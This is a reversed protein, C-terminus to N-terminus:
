PRPAQLLASQIETFYEDGTQLSASLYWRARGQEDFMTPPYVAVGVVGGSAKLMAMQYRRWTGDPTMVHLWMERIETSTVGALAGSIVTPVDLPIRQPPALADLHPREGVGFEFTAFRQNGGPLDIVQVPAAEGQHEVRVSHPGRPLELTLPTVGRREGDIWVGAGSLTESGEDGAMRARVDLVGTSPATMPRALVAATEGVKVTVTQGWSPMGPGSFRVEHAGPLVSDLTVPVFGRAVGDVSVSIPLGSESGRVDLAGWLPADLVVRDGREGRVEFSASGLDAFSLTIQHLGPPADVTAPTRRALDKGDLAIWAGPPRSQVVIDFRAGGFGLARAARAVPGPGSRDEQLGGIIWGGGLLGVAVLAWTWWRRWLAVEPKPAEPTPWAAHSQVAARPPPAVEDLFPVIREPEAAPASDAVLPAQHPPSPSEADARRVPTEPRAVPSAPALPQSWAPWHIELPEHELAETEHAQPGPV